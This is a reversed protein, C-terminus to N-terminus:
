LTSERGCVGNEPSFQTVASSVNIHGVGNDDVSVAPTWTRASHENVAFKREERGSGATKM